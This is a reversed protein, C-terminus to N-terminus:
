CDGGPEAGVFSPPPSPAPTDTPAPTPLDEPDTPTYASGLVVTLPEEADGPVLAAGGMAEALLEAEELRGEPYIVQTERFDFSEANGTEAVEFGQAELQELAQQALGAIGAGNLITVPPVDGIGVPTPEELGVGEPVLTGERFARFLAEAEAEDAVVFAAGNITRPTAPVTRTDLNEPSLDRLSFAIRRMQGISLQRDTEVARAGADVLSFLRPVNVLTGVSAAEDVVERIFRQQRAIRGFDSDIRRVRVFGLATAGDMTVCGAPLDVGAHADKIPEDLYMTVGGLSDVIDIFGAFDVQIFHHIPIGTFDTVTRVLCTPGGVGSSEGVGYAANIRGRSGDCRTVLLDRPFSLVIVQDRRPDLQLLMVTDTRLGDEAETGLELLQEDTLGERSDSGVLLVNLVDTIEEIDPEGDGDTDTTEGDVVLDPVDVRQMTATGYWIAAGTTIGGALLVIAATGLVIASLRRWDPGGRRVRGGRLLPGFQGTPLSSTM